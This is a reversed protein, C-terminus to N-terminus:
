LFWRVNTHTHTLSLSLSLSSAGVRGWAVVVRWVWGSAVRRSVNRSLQFLLGKSQEKNWGFYRVLLRKTDEDKMEVDGRKGKPFRLIAGEGM